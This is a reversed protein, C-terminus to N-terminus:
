RCRRGAVAKADTVTDDSCVAIADFPSLCHQRWERLTQALLSLSPVLVLVLDTNLREALRLATLTKGTGCAMHLQGRDHHALAETSPRTRRRIARGSLPPGGVPVGWGSVRV